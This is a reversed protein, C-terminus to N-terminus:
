EPVVVVRWGKDSNFVHLDETEAGGDAFVCRETIKVLTPTVTKPKGLSCEVDSFDPFGIEKMQRRFSLELLEATKRLMEPDEAFAPDMSQLLLRAEETFDKAAVAAEVDKNIYATELARIANEPTTFDAAGAAAPIGIALVTLVFRCRM